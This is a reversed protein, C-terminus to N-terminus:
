GFGSLHEAVLERLTDAYSRMVRVEYRPGERDRRLVRVIMHHAGTTAFSHDPFSRERLDIPVLRKLLEAAGDGEVALGAQDHGLDLLAGDEADLELPCDAGDAGIVWWKLPEVRILLRGDSAVSVGGPAPAECELAAAVRQEVSASTEPWTAIQWLSGRPLARVRVDGKSTAVPAAFPSAREAM